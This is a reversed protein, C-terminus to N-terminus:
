KWFSNRLVILPLSSFVREVEQWSVEFNDDDADMREEGQKLADGEQRQPDRGVKESVQILDYNM